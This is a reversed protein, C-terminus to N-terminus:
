WDSCQLNSNRTTFSYSRRRLETPYLLLKRFELDATRDQGDDNKPSENSCAREEKLEALM